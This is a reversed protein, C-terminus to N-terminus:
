LLDAYSLSPFSGHILYYLSAGGGTSCFSMSHELNFLYVAAVSDGGGIVTFASSQAITQLLQKFPELTEPRNFFGMAGNVFITQAAELVKAYETLSTPGTAVGSGSKFDGSIIDLRQNQEAVLFDVPLLFQVGKEKAKQMIKLADAFLETEVPSDGVDKGLAKLFTFALAPLVIIIDARDLMYELFPLKDKVKGGGLILAFPRQAHRLQELEKVEHEILLGITKQDRSYLSPLLTISADLRHLLAFADNVYYDALRYLKEAFPLLREQEGQYFRLNELILVSGPKLSHSISFASGLDPAWQISYGHKEFWPCLYKTSLKKDVGQPRGIHTGLVIRAGKKILLDITPKVAQLRFDNIITENVLPVNLDARLFVRKGELQAQALTSHIKM